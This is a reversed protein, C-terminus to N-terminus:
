PHKETVDAAPKKKIEEEKRTKETEEHSRQQHDRSGKWTGKGQTKEEAQINQWWGM